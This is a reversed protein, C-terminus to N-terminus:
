FFMKSWVNLWGEVRLPLDEEEDFDTMTATWQWLVFLTYNFQFQAMVESGLKFCAMFSAHMRSTWASWLARASRWHRLLRMELRVCCLRPRSFM